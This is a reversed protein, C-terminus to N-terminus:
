GLEARGTLVDDRLLCGKARLYAFRFPTAVVLTGAQEVVFQAFQALSQAPNLIFLPRHTPPVFSRSVPWTM